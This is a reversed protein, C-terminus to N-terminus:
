RPSLIRPPRPPVHRQGNTEQGPGCHAANYRALLRAPPAQTISTSSKSSPLWQDALFLSFTIPAFISAMWFTFSFYVILKKGRGLLSGGHPLSSTSTKSDNRVASTISSPAEAAKINLPQTFSQLLHDATVDISFDYFFFVFALLYSHYVNITFLLCIKNFSIFTEANSANCINTKRILQVINLSFESLM